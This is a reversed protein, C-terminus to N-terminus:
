FYNEPLTSLWMILAVALVSVTVLLVALAILGMKAARGVRSVSVRPRSKLGSRRSHSPPKPNLTGDSGGYPIPPADDAAV